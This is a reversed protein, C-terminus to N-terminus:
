DDLLRREVETVEGSEAMQVLVAFMAKVENLSKGEHLGKLVNKLMETRKSRNNFYESM